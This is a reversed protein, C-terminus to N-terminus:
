PEQEPHFEISYNVVTPVPLGTQEIQVTAPWTAIYTISGDLGSCWRAGGTITCTPADAPIFGNVMLSVTVSTDAGLTANTWARLNKLQGYPMPVSVKDADTSYGAIGPGSYVVGTATSIEAGTGGTLLAYGAGAPGTAGTPGTPGTPGPEGAPGAPGPDGSPGPEGAPGAPGPDGSAGTAGTPGTPGTAGTAGPAGELALVAWAGPTSEPDNGLNDDILSLYSSGGLSVADNVRYTTSPSWVDRWAFGTREWTFLTEGDPCNQKPGLKRLVNIRGIDTKIKAVCTRAPAPPPPPDSDAYAATSLAVVLGM